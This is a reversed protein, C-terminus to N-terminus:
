IISIFYYFVLKEFLEGFYLRTMPWRLYQAELTELLDDSLEKIAFLNSFIGDVDSKTIISEDLVGNYLPNM